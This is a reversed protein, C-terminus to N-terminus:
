NQRKIDKSFKRISKKQVGLKEKLTQCENVILQVNEKTEEFQKRTEQFKNDLARNENLLNEHASALESFKRQSGDREAKIADVRSVLAQKEAKLVDVAEDLKNNEDSVSKTLIRTEQLNKSM